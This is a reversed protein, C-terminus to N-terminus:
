LGLAGGPELVAGRCPAPHQLVGKAAQEQTPCVHVRVGPCHQVLPSILAAPAVGLSLKILWVAGSSPAKNICSDNNNVVMCLQQM